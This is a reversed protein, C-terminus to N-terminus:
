GHGPAGLPMGQRRRWMKNLNHTAMILKWESDCASLGRRMFRRIGRSHKTQGFVPEISRARNAYLARGEETALREAMRERPSLLQRARWSRVRRTVTSPSVGMLVAADIGKTEGADVRQLLAGWQQLRDNETVPDLHALKSSKATAILLDPGQLDANPASWYGADALVTGVPELAGATALNTTIANVMPELLKADTAHNTVEAAVVFQDTTVAAQANYGQVWGKTSSMLRSDPDTINASRRGQRPGSHPQPKRGRLKRGLEAERQEREAVATEYSHRQQDAELQDLADRIRERRGERRRWQEPMEDGRADGYQEDEAEDTAAAEALIEAALDAASRNAAMSADAEM